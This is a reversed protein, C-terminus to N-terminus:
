KAEGGKRSGFNLKNEEHRLIRKINTRHAYLMIAAMVLAFPFFEREMFFCAAPFFFAVVISGMSVMRTILVTLIVVGLCILALQWNIGLVTGFAVAVGKGGKFGFCVPWIHGAFAAFACFMAATPTSLLYGIEVALFGKGIDIALTALAAKKGLVRLANTTGANGSGSSKIDIGKQRGILISPSINGLFYAIIIVLAFWIRDDM